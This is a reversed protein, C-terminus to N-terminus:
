ALRGDSGSSCKECDGDPVLQISLRGKRPDCSDIWSEAQQGWRRGLTYICVCLCMCVYVCVCVCACVCRRVCMCIYYTHCSRSTHGKCQRIIGCLLEVYYYTQNWM